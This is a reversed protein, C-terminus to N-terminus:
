KKVIINNSSDVIKLYDDIPDLEMKERRSNLHISDILNEVYARGNNKFSLQTGYIQKRNNLLEVRDILYALQRKKANGNKVAVKMIPLYKEMTEVDHAHQITVFLALNADKGVENEGLWGLSDIIKTVIKINKRDLSDQKIHDYIPDRFKQDDVLVEELIKKVENYEKEKKCSFCCLFLMLLIKCKTIRLKNLRFM